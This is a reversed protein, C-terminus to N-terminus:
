VRGPTRRLALGFELWAAGHVILEVAILTGLVWLGSWPLTVYLGIGVGISVLGGLLLLAAGGLHWHRVAMVVRLVGAVVMVAALCITVVLSGSVPESMVLFGGVVYLLGSLVHLLFVGWSRDLFAHLVQLVGGVVLAVGIFIVGALTVAVVDFWAFAGLLIQLIGLLVFWYWRSQPRLRSKLGPSDLSPNSASSM